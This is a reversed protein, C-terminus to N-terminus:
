CLLHITIQLIMEVVSIFSVSGFLVSTGRYIKVAILTGLLCTTLRDTTTLHDTCNSTATRHNTRAEALTHSLHDHAKRSHQCRNDRCSIDAEGDLRQYKFDFKSTVKKNGVRGIGSEGPHGRGVWKGRPSKSSGGGEVIDAFEYQLCFIACIAGM